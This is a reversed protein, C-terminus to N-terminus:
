FARSTKFPNSAFCAYIYTASSVNPNTAAAARIKFGNSLIDLRTATAEIASSDPYLEPGQVNYGQRSTDHIFWSSTSDTRKYLIFRPLFGTYIFSGDGSVGNATFGGFASYGAVPAFCYAVYKDTSNTRANTGISFVSSSFTPSGGNWVTNDTAEADTGTTTQFLKLYKTAGISAHYVAGGNSSSDRDKILIMSPAVGLGHGVTANAGTGTYTVVSFGASTNASLRTAAISGALTASSNSGNIKVSGATPVNGAGATNNVTPAGGANWQWGIFNYTLYNVQGSGYGVTFGNNNLSTLQGMAQEANTVDSFLALYNGRVSDWFTNNAAFNRAKIWVLDPAFGGSNVITKSNAGDGQYLSADFHKNGAAITPTPLNQTNLASFGSPPAGTGVYSSGSGSVYLGRFPQQGFNMNWVTNQLGSIAPVWSAIGSVITDSSKGGSAVTIAVGNKYATFTLGDLDFAVGIVDGAALTGNGVWNNNAYGAESNTSGVVSQNPIIGVFPFSGGVTTLTAEFYWKGSSVAQTAAITSNGQAAGWTVTLNGNSPVVATNGGNIPNITCYNGRGNGGDAYNTPSDIMSDYTTGSSTVNVNASAWNNGAGSSDQGAIFNGWPTAASTTVSGTNTISLANASNDVITSSQLTLLQTNTVATLATVPPTFNSTYLATGKIVRVNSLLGTFIGSGQGRALTFQNGSQYLSATSTFTDVQTGDVFVRWTSGSRTYAIHYWRGITISAIATRGSAIDWSGGTSSLYTVLAGGTIYGFLGDFSVTGTGACCLTAGNAAVTTNMWYEITFDSTGLGLGANTATTLYQTGGFTGAFSSTASASFPLYFSNGSYTGTYAKPQWVGNTDYAGFLTAVNLAAWTTANYTTGSVTPYGDIFNVEALYGDMSGTTPPSVLGIYHIATNSNVLTTQSPTPYTATTIAAQVGNVYIKARNAATAQTTDVALVVHYWSSPDRYLATTTVQVANTGNFFGFTLADAINDGYMLYWTNSTSTASGFLKSTGLAGRKVWGSWTWTTTNTTSAPTRNLYASASARFRLSRPIRYASSAQKAFLADKSAFM